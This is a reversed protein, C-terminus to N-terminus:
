QGGADGLASQLVRYLVEVDVPKSVFANMGAQTAADVDEKFSNATMAIIPVAAADQRPLRRIMRCAELGDMVPMQIDMLIVKYEGPASKEFATVAEQGNVARVVKAGQMELLEGAIEANLDNDETLLIRVGSLFNEERPKAAAPKENCVPFEVSFYFESGKGPESRLSLEGGMLSVATRSIALGLGTGQSKSINTGLQEFADFIRKQDRQSIGSGNDSVSFRYLAKGGKLGEEKVAVRVRGGASTFKFANSVLNMLVQKLRVADGALLDDQIDEEVVFDLERRQAEATMMSRLEDVLQGMSFAEEAIEMKGSEIRSMDLIDSILNLLYRSSSHIKLLNEKVDPPVGEMMCTLDSLGMIANMPTRIEHSMRSLFEGKARNAAEAKELSSQMRAARVSSRSIIVVVTSLLLFVVALIIVFTVPDAYIMDILNFSGAGMSIINQSVLAEKKGSDLSNIAKNMVTLLETEAPSAVAFTVRNRDNVLTNPVINTYHHEQIEYEIKASLAYVFDVQGRNVAQLADQTNKYYRVEGAHIDDPIRRGEVVAGVLNESPYSVSKNRAIIDNLVAYSSTLALGMGCAEEDTGLYAGLMDAEGQRVLELADSYSDAFVYTFDLGTYGSVEKLMDPILGSHLGGDKDMCFLPHWDNVVAVSVTRKQEIYEKEEKNLFISKIISDPFNANYCEEAFNPNSDVIKALAMNLGDLVERNGLTTVIYHPQSDFQAAVRFGKDIDNVNGLLMDVEGSELFAYLNGDTTQEYKYYKLNCEIGSNELFFELRHINEGAREYVGITKGEMSRLDFAKIRDDDRRALLVSKSYGTNYDPYAFYEEFAPLYYTGGMLDYKGALFEDVVSEGDTDIYEYKWGTYKAIENLYDVVIGHRKGDEDKECFGETQPFAVRLVTEESEQEGAAASNCPLLLFAAATLVVAMFVRGIGAWGRTKVKM